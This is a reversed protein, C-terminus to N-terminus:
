ESCRVVRRGGAANYGFSVNWGATCQQETMRSFHVPSMSCCSVVTFSVPNARESCNNLIFRPVYSSFDTTKGYTRGSFSGGCVLCSGVHLSVCIYSLFFLSLNFYQLTQRGVWHLLFSSQVQAEYWDREQKYVCFVSAHVSEVADIKLNWGLSSAWICTYHVEM